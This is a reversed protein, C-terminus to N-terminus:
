VPAGAGRVHLTVPVNGRTANSYPCVAHAERLLARAMEADVDPLEATLEVTLGFAGGDLPGIGVRATIAVRGPEIRRRRAVAAVASGFCGAYGAAFLQEPNTGPDGNGGMERPPTLRVDLAGDDSRARGDRGGDATVTATYLVRTPAAPKGNIPM